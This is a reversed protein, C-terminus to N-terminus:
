VALRDGDLIDNRALGTNTKIFILITSLLFLTSHNENKHYLLLLVNSTSLQVTENQARLAKPPAGLKRLNPPFPIFLCSALLVPTKQNELSFMELPKRLPVPPFRETPWFIVM